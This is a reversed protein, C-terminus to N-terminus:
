RSLLLVAIIIAMVVLGIGLYIETLSRKAPVTTAQTLKALYSAAATPTITSVDALQDALTDDRQHGIGTLIPISSRCIAEAVLLDGFVALDSARGGGRIIAIVDATKERNVREIAESISVPAQQGQLRVDYLKTSAGGNGRRYTDEFDHLADSQKSTILAISRIPKPLPRKEKPWLGKEALQEQVSADMVYGPKELLKAKEVDIQIKANKEYVRISGFVAVELGNGMEFGLSGRTKNHIMCSISHDEDNIDFYIHGIDSTYCRTVYGETWFPYSLTEQEVLARVLANVQPIPRKQEQVM